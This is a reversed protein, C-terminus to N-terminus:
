GIVVVEVSEDETESDVSTVSLIELVGSERYLHLAVDYAESDTNTGAVITGQASEALPRYVYRNKGYMIDLYPNEITYAYSVPFNYRAKGLIKSGYLYTIILNTTEVVDVPSLKVKSKAQLGFTFDCSEIYGTAIDLDGTYMEVRQAPEFECNNIVEAELGVRNFYFTSLHTLIDSVNDANVLYVGDFTIENTPVSQPVNPNSLSYNQKAVIYYNTGDSVWEETNQPTGQTFTYGVINIATIYDRYVISPKWYTKEIPITTVTDDIPLIEIKDSFYSKVYAGICFCVWQLRNKASQKPCFGTVTASSFSADLTYGGSGVSAFLEAMLAPVSKNTYKVADMMDRELWKLQSQGKVQVTYKDIREAFIIWYKAWLHDLDDYLYVYQGVSISDDTMINVLLENIPISDGVIDTQPAFSLNKIETYDVNNVTIYM